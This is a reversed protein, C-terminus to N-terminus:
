VHARGIKDITSVFDKSRPPKPQPMDTPRLDACIGASSLGTWLATAIGDTTPERIVTIGSASFARTERGLGRIDTDVAWRSRERLVTAIDAAFSFAEQDDRIVFFRAKTGPYKITKAVIDFQQGVSLSRRAANREAIVLSTELAVIKLQQAESKKNLLAVMEGNIDSLQHQSVFGGGVGLILVLAFARGVKRRWERRRIWQTFYIICVGVAGIAVAITAGDEVASWFSKASELTPIDAMM